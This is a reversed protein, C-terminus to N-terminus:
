HLAVMKYGVGWVTVIHEPHAPDSEIKNRLRNIHSNVTHEYGEYGYGWVQDLLEARQFVRGPARAFHLLLDFERATLTVEREDVHVARQVPDIAVRGVSITDTAMPAARNAVRRLLAKVRAVLEMVGFPKVVYDDAGLELGLVRDLETSKASVILIPTQCGGSRLRKCIDLGDIGPLRIDLIILSWQQDTALRLAEIGDHCKVVDFHHDALHMAALDAIDREDEVLLIRETTM